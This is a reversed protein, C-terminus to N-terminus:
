ALWLAYYWTMASMAVWGAGVLRGLRDVWSREPRASRALAQTTWAIIVAFGGLMSLVFSALYPTDWSALSNPFLCRLAALYTAGVAWASVVAVCAALGPQRVLRRWKPRPKRLRITLAALTASAAPPMAVVVLYLVFQADPWGVNSGSRNWYQRWHIKAPHGRLVGLAVAIAGILIMGDLLTFRRAATPRPMPTDM